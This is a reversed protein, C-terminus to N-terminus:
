SADKKLRVDCFDSFRLTTNMHETGFIKDMHVNADVFAM